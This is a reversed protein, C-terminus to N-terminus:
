PRLGPPAPSSSSRQRSRSAIAPTSRSLDRLRHRPPAGSIARDDARARGARPHARDRGSALRRSGPGGRAAVSRTSIAPTTASGTLARLRNWAMGSSSTPSRAAPSAITCIPLRAKFGVSVILRESQSTNVIQPSTFVSIKHCANGPPLPSPRQTPSYGPGVAQRQRGQARRFARQTCCGGGLRDLARKLKHHKPSLEDVPRSRHEANV